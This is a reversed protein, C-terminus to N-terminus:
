FVFPACAPERPPFSINACESAPSDQSRYWSAITSSLRAHPSKLLAGSTSCQSTALACSVAARAAACAITRSSFRWQPRGSWEGSKQRGHSAEAGARRGRHTCADQPTPSRRTGRRKIKQAFPWHAQGSPEHDLGQDTPTRRGLRPADPLLTRGLPEHSVRWVPGRGGRRRECPSTGEVGAGVPAGPTKHLPQEDVLGCSRGTAASGTTGRGRCPPGSLM